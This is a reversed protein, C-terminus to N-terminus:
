QLNRSNQAELNGLIRQLEKAVNTNRTIRSIIHKNYKVNNADSVANPYSKKFAPPEKTPQMTEERTTEPKYKLSNLKKLKRLHLPRKTKADNTKITELIHFYEEKATVNKLDTETERINQKTQAITKDCYSVIRKMLTLSFSKLKAYWTDVFEQDFYRITPVLELRLGKPVLKKALCHNLFDKHSEYRIFKDKLFNVKHATREKQKDTPSTFGSVPTGMVENGGILANTSTQEVLITPTLEERKRKALCQNEEEGQKGKRNFFTM